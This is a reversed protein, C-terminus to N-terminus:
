VPWVYGTFEPVDFHYFDPKKMNLSACHSLRVSEDGWWKPFRPKGCHPLFEMTNRYGRRIWERIMANTYMALACSYGKWARAAPHNRWGKTLGKNARWIQYAEVRQKGLRRYDLSRATEDVDWSIIFTNVM